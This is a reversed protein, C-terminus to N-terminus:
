GQSKTHTSTQKQKNQPLAYGGLNNQDLNRLKRRSESMFRFSLCLYVCVLVCELVLCYVDPKRADCCAGSEKMLPTRRIEASSAAWLSM